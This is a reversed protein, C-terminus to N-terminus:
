TVYESGKGSIIAYEKFDIFPLLIKNLKQHALQRAKVELSIAENTNGWSIYDDLRNLEDLCEQFYVLMEKTDPSELLKKVTQPNM